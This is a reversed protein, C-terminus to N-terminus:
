RLEQVARAVWKQCIPPEWVGVTDALSIRNVGAALAAQAM